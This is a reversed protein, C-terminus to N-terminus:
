VDITPLRKSCGFSTARSKCLIIASHLKTLSDRGEEFKWLRMAENYFATM